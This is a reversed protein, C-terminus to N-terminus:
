GRRRAEARAALERQIRRVTETFEPREVSWQQARLELAAAEEVDALAAGARLSEKARRVLAAPRDAARRALGLATAELDADAVCRWALGHEAAERGTLADGCLVM